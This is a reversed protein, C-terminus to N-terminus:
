CNEGAAEKRTGMYVSSFVIPGDVKREGLVMGFFSVAREWEQSHFKAMIVKQSTGDANQRGTQLQCKTVYVCSVFVVPEETKNMVKKSSQYGEVAKFDAPDARAPNAFRALRNFRM